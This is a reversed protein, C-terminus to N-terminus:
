MKVKDLHWIDRNYEEITRDTSFYGSSAINLLCMKNWKEQNKYLEDIKQHAQLYPYFDAFHFYEDNGYLLEDYIARFEDKNVDWTGDILSDM